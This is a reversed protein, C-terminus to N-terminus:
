IRFGIGVLFSRSRNNPLNSIVDDEYNLSKLLLFISTGEPNGVIRSTAINIWCVPKDFKSFSDLHIQDFQFFQLESMSGSISSPQISAHMPAWLDDNADYQDSHQDDGDNDDDEDDGEEEWYNEDLIEDFSKSKSIVDQPGQGDDVDHHSCCSGTSVDKDTM